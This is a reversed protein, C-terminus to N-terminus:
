RTTCGPGRANPGLSFARALLDLAEAPAGLRLRCLGLIRLAPPAPPNEEALPALLAASAAYDGARYHAEADPIVTDINLRVAGGGM